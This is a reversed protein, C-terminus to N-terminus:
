KSWFIISIKGVAQLAPIRGSCWLGEFFIFVTLPARVWATFVSVSRLGTAKSWEAMVATLSNTERYM